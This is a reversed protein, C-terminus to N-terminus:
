AGIRPENGGRLVEILYSVGFRQGTRYICSLALRAAQTADFTVPPDLCNDCNGCPQALQEGFYGLLAQRRCGTTEVLGLLAEFKRQEVRRREDPSDTAALLQRVGVVDALGYGLWANAPLGDRGA